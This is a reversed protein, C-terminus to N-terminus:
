VNVEKILEIFGTRNEICYGDTMINQNINCMLNKIGDDLTTDFFIKRHSNIFFANEKIMAM